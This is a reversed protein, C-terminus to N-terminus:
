NRKAMVLWLLSAWAIGLAWGGLLDSPWHVGLHIRTLGILAVIVLAAGILFARPARRRAERAALGGLTLLVGASVTAHASPFSKTFVQSAHLLADPRPRDFPVKLGMGLAIAGAAALAVHLAAWARGLLLLYAAVFLSLGITVSLSGLSSVDRVAEGFWEPAGETSARLWTFFAEDLPELRDLRTAVLAALLAFITSGAALGAIAARRLPPRDAARGFAHDRATM